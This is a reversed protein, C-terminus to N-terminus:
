TAEGHGTHRAASEDHLGHAQCFQTRMRLAIGEFKRVSIAAHSITACWIRMDTAARACRLSYPSLPKGKHLHPM